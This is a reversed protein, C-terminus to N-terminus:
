GVAVNPPVVPQNFAGDARIPLVKPPPVGVLVDATPEIVGAPPALRESETLTRVEVFFPTHDSTRIGWSKRFKEWADAENYAEVVARDITVERPRGTKPDHVTARTTCDLYKKTKEDWTVLHLLVRYRRLVPPGYSPDQPPPEGELRRITAKAADLAKQDEPSLKKDAM